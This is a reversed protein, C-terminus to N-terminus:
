LISYAQETETESIGTLQYVCTFQQLGSHSQVRWTQKTESFTDYLALTTLTIDVLGSSVLGLGLTATLLMSNWANWPKLHATTCLNHLQLFATKRHGFFLDLIKEFALLVIDGLVVTVTDCM